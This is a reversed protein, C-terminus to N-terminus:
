PTFTITVYMIRFAHTMCDLDHVLSVCVACDHRAVRDWVPGRLIVLWSAYAITLWSGYCAYLHHTHAYSHAHYENYLCTILTVYWALWVLMNGFMDHLMPRLLGLIYMSLPVRVTPGMPFTFTKTAYGVQSWMPGISPGACVLYATLIHTRCPYFMYILSPVMTPM